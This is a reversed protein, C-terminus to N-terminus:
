RNYGIENIAEGLDNISLDKNLLQIDNETLNGSMINEIAKLSFENEYYEEAWEQYESPSWSFPKILKNTEEENSDFKVWEIGNLYWLSTSENISFAPEAIFSSYENPFQDKISDIETLMKYEHSMVKLAAFSNKIWLFWEDGSGDRMSAMEEGEDWKSNYSYYRDEWEPSIIAELLAISKLNNTIKEIMIKVSLLRILQNM